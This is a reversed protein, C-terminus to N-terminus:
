LSDWEKQSLLLVAKINGAGFGYTERPLFMPKGILFRVTQKHFVYFILASCSNEKLCKILLIGGVSLNM